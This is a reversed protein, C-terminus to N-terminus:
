TWYDYLIAGIDPATWGVPKLIKGTDPDKVVPGYTGDIKSTNARVIADWCERAKDVGATHIAGTLAVYATDLFGDVVGPVDNMMWAEETEAVEESVRGMFSTVSPSASMCPAPAVYQGGARMFEAIEEFVDKTPTDEEERQKPPTSIVCDWGGPAFVGLPNSYGERKVILQGNDTAYVEADTFEHERDGRFVTVSSAKVLFM